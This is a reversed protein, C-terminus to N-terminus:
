YIDAAFTTFLLGSYAVIGIRGDSGNTKAAQSGNKLFSKLCIM